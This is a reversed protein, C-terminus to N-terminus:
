SFQLLQLSNLAVVLCVFHPWQVITKQFSDPTFIWRRCLWNTIQMLETSAIGTVHSSIM